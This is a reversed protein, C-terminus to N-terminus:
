PVCKACSYSDKCLNIPRAIAGCRRDQGSEHKWKYRKKQVRQSQNCFYIQKSSTHSNETAKKTKQKNREKHSHLALAAADASWIKSNLMSLYLSRSAPTWHDARKWLIPIEIPRYNHVGRKIPVDSLIHKTHSQTHAHTTLQPFQTAFLAARPKRWIGFM